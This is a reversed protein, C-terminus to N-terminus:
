KKKRNMIEVRKALRRQRRAEAAEIKPRAREAELREREAKRAKYEELRQRRLEDLEPDVRLTGLALSQGFALAAVSAAISNRM